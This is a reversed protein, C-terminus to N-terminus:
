NIEAHKGTLDIEKGIYWKQILQKIEKSSFNQIFTLNANLMDNHELYDTPIVNELVLDASAVLQM